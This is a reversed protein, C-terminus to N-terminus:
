EASGIFSLVAFFYSRMVNMSTSRSFRLTISEVAILMHLNPSDPPITYAVCTRGVEENVGVMAVAPLDAGGYEEPADLGWLGLERAVADVKDQEDKPLGAGLGEADRALVLGERPLLQDRVFNAVLDKLMRHEESLEFDM